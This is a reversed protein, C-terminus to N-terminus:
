IHSIHQNSLHWSATWELSASCRCFVVQLRFVTRSRPVDFHGTRHAINSLKANQICPCHFKVSFLTPGIYTVGLLPPGQPPPPEAYHETTPHVTWRGNVGRSLALWLWKEREALFAEREALFALSFPRRAFSFVTPSHSVPRAKAKGNAPRSSYPWPRCCARWWTM